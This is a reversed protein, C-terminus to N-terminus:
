DTSLVTLSSIRSRPTIKSRVVEKNIPDFFIALLFTLECFTNQNDTKIIYMM